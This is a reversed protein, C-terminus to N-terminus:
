KNRKKLRENIKKAEYKYHLNLALWVIFYVITSELISFNFDFDFLIGSIIRSIFAIFLYIFYHIVTQQWLKLFSRDFIVPILGATISALILSSLANARFLEINTTGGIILQILILFSSILMGNFAYKFFNKIM